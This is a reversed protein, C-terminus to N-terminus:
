MSLQAEGYLAEALTLGGHQLDNGVAVAASGRRLALQSQLILPQQSPHQLSVKGIPYEVFKGGGGIQFAAETRYISASNQATSSGRVADEADIIRFRLGRNVGCQGERQKPKM